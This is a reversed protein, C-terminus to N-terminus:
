TILPINHKQLVMNIIIKNEILYNYFKKFTTESINDCKLKIDKETVGIDCQKIILYIIGICRSINNSSYTHKFETARNLVVYYIDVVVECFENNMQLNELCEEIFGRTPDKIEVNTNRILFEMGQTFKNANKLGCYKILTKKTKAINNNICVVYICAAIVGKKSQSRITIHDIKDGNKVNTTDFYLDAVQTIINQSLVLGSSEQNFRNINKYINQKQSDPQNPSCSYNIISYARTQKGTLRLTSNTFTKFNREPTNVEKIIGCRDCVYGCDHKSMEVFCSECSNIYQKIDTDANDVKCENLLSDLTDFYM